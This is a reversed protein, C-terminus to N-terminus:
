VTSETIGGSGQAEFAHEVMGDFTSTVTKGTVIVSGSLKIDGSANGEPYLEVTVTSGVDLSNQAADTEDFFCEFSVTFQGLGAKYSRFSDGMSTDEIVDGTVNLTFTRIEALENGGIFVTGESGSHTAM